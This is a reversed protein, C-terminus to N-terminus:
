NDPSRMEPPIQVKSDTLCTLNIDTTADEITQTTETGTNGGWIRRTSNLKAVKFKQLTLKQKKM